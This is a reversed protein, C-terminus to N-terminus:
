TPATGPPSSFQRPPTSPVETTGVHDLAFVLTLENADLLGHVSDTWRTLQQSDPRMGHLQVRDLEGLLRTLARHQAHITEILPDDIDDCM